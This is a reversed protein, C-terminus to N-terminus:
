DDAPAPATPAVTILVLDVYALRFAGDVEQIARRARRAAAVEERAAVDLHVAFASGVVQVLFAGALDGPGRRARSSRRPTCRPSTPFTSRSGRGARARTAARGSM